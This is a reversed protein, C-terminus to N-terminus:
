QDYAMKIINGDAIFLLNITGSVRYIMTGVKNLKQNEDSNM